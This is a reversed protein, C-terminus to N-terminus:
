ERPLFLGCWDSRHSEPWFGLEQCSVCEHKDDSSLIEAMRENFRPPQARCEGYDLGESSQWYRCNDCRAANM